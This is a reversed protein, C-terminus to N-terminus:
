GPAPGGEDDQERATTSEVEDAEGYATHDEPDTPEPPLRDALPDATGEGHQANEILEEEAQEFGEAVGGGAEEVPAQEEAKRDAEEPGLDSEHESM